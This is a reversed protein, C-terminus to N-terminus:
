FKLFNMLIEEKKQDFKYAVEEVVANVDACLKKSNDQFTVHRLDELLVTKLKNLEESLLKMNCTSLKKDKATKMSQSVLRRITQDAQHLVSAACIARDIAKQEINEEFPKEPNELSVDLLEFVKQSDIELVNETSKLILSNKEWINRVPDPLQIKTSMLVVTEDNVPCSREHNRQLCLELPCELFLQLFGLSNRRAIQFVEYRMSQYYFNDDLIIVLPRLYMNFVTYQQVGLQTEGSIIHQQKLSQIFCEWTSDNEIGSVSLCGNGHIAQILHEIYVLLKHRYLKWLSGTTAPNDTLRDGDTQGLLSFAEGPILEDYCLLLSQRKPQLAELLRRAFTSKGAGPLGAVLCLSVSQRTERPGQQGGRQELAASRRSSGAAGVEPVNMDYPGNWKPAFDPNDPLAQVLICSGAAPVEPFVKLKGAKDKKDQKDIVSKRIGGNWYTAKDPRAKIAPAEAEQLGSAWDVLDDYDQSM